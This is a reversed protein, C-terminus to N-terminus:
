QGGRCERVTELIENLTIDTQIGPVDLPSMSAKEAVVPVIRFTNGGRRAIFVEERMATNLMQSFNQLAEDYNYVQM